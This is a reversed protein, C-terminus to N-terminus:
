WQSSHSGSCRPTVSNTASGKNEAKINLSISQTSLGRVQAITGSQYGSYVFLDVFYNNEGWKFYCDGLPPLHQTREAIVLRFGESRLFQAGQLRPKSAPFSRGHTNSGLAGVNSNNTVLSNM